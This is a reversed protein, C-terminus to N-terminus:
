LVAITVLVAALAVAMPGFAVARSRAGNGGEVVVPGSPQPQLGNQGDGGAGGGSGTGSTGDVPVPEADTLGSGPQNPISTSPGGPGTLVTDIIQEDASNLLRARCPPSVHMVGNDLAIDSRLIRASNGGELSVYSGTGDYVM